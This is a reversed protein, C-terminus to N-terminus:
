RVEGDSPDTLHYYITAANIEPPLDLIQQLNYALTKAATELQQEKQKVSIKVKVTYKQETDKEKINLKVIFDQAGNKRVSIKMISDADQPNDPLYLYQEWSLTEKFVKCFRQSFTDNDPEIYMSFTHKLVARNNFEIYTKASCGTVLAILILIYIRSRLTTMWCEGKM